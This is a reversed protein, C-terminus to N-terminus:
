HRKLIHTEHFLPIQFFYSYNDSLNPSHFRTEKSIRQEKSLLMWPTRLVNLLSMCLWGWGACVFLWLYSKRQERSNHLSHSGKPDLTGFLNTQHHPWRLHRRVSYGKFFQPPNVDRINPVLIQKGKLFGLLGPLVQTCVFLADAPVTVPTCKTFSKSTRWYHRIRDPHQWNDM